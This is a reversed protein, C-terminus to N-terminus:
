GSANVTSGDTGTFVLSNNVTLSKGDVGGYTLSANQTVTKANAITLTAATAPATITVKNISTATAVGLTPTTMTPSTMVPSALTGVTTLAALTSIGTLDANVVARFTPAVTSGSSSGALFLNPGQTALSATLTGATTVPSNSVSFMSP